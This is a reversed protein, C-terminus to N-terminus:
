KGRVTRRRRAAGTVLALGALLMATSAPEPVPSPQLPGVDDTHTLSVLNITFKLNSSLASNNDFTIWVRESADM